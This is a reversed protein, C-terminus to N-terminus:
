RTIVWFEKFPTKLHWTTEAGEPLSAIDGAKLHLTSGGAIEIRAEGELVMLTERRPITWTIPGVAESFRSLGAEVGVGSCLIHMEGGVESDPEWEETALDSVFLGPSIQTM